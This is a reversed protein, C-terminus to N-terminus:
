RADLMAHWDRELDSVNRGYVARFQERVRDAPDLPDGPGFLRKMPELGHADLLFRVFSGAEPYTVNPDFRRFDSTTLLDAMAVLRNQSRFQRALDHVPTGSWRAVLDNRAPDTQFAVALGESWLAVPRGFLSSYLHVVEHNDRAWLTHIEYRAANAFGNANYTGTLDGMHQRSFYKNYGIKGPVQVQLAATAWAHYSEQWDADVTDGNAYHFVYSSTEITRGLSISSSPSTPSGGCGSSAVAVLVILAPLRSTM